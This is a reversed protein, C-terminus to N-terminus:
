KRKKEPIKKKSFSSRIEEEKHEEQQDMYLRSASTSVFHKLLFAGFETWITSVISSPTEPLGATIDNM